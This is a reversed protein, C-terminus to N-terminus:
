THWSFMSTASPQEVFRNMPPVRRQSFLVRAAAVATRSYQRRPAAGGCPRANVFVTCSGHFERACQRVSHSCPPRVVPACAIKNDLLLRLAQTGARLTGLRQDGGGPGPGARSSVARACLQHVQYPTMDCPCKVFLPTKSIFQGAKLDATAREFVGPGPPSPPAVAAM